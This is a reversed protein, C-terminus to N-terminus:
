DTITEVSVMVSFDFPNFATPQGPVGARVQMDIAYEQTGELHPLSPLQGTAQDPQANVDVFPVRLRYRVLSEEDEDDVLVAGSSGVVDALGTTSSEEDTSGVIFIDNIRILDKGSQDHDVTPQTPDDSVGCGISLVAVSLLLSPVGVIRMFTNM